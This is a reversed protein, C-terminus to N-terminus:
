PVALGKTLASGLCLGVRHGDGVGEAEFGTARRAVRTAPSPLANWGLEEALRRHAEDYRWRQQRGTGSLVLSWTGDSDDVAVGHVPFGAVHTLTTTPWRRRWPSVSGPPHRACPYAHEDGQGWVYRESLPQGGCHASFRRPGPRHAQAVVRAWTEADLVAPLRAGPLLRAHHADRWELRPGRGLFRACHTADCVDAEAHRPGSALFRLVAAALEDRLGRDAEPAEGALVGHVYEQISAEAVPVLVGAHGGRVSLAASVRRVLGFAPLRLEWLGAGLRQEARLERRAGPGVWGDGRGRESWTSPTSGANVAMIDRAALLDFLRIRVTAPVPGPGPADVARTSPPVPAPTSRARPAPAPTTPAALVPAWPRALALPAALAVAAERGTGRPLLGLLGFGTDDLALAWGSTRLPRGDLAPVTGTKAWFGRRGLGRATGVRAAERLGRLLELRLAEGREWPESVLRAYALLLAAPEIRLAASEDSLGIAAAASPTGVVDFGEARLLAALSDAPVVEALARFYTNCSQATARVLDCRGHGAPRWCGSAHTCTVVPAPEHAHAAAWAKVVFPKQLSGVPWAGAPAAPDTVRGQSLTWVHLAAPGAGSPMPPAARVGLPSMALLTVLAAIRTGRLM